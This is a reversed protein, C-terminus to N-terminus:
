GFVYEDLVIGHRKLFSAYEEEFTTKRHHEEQRDIYAVTNKLQSIGLTFVGYGEQWEFRARGPRDNMWKSSGAKILQIAKSVPISPPVHLAIHVHNGTGGVRLSRLNNERAIGGIYDWLRSRLDVPITSLRQKTSFVFHYLVSSYTHAMAPTYPSM